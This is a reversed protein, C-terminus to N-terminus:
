HLVKLVLAAHDQQAAESILAVAVNKVLHLRQVIKLPLANCYHLCFIVLAHGVSTLGVWNLFM